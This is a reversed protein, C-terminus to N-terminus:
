KPSISCTREPYGLAAKRSFDMERRLNVVDMFLFVRHNFLGHCIRKMFSLRCEVAIRSHENAGILPMAQPPHRMSLTLFEGFLDLSGM